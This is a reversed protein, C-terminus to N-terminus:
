EVLEDFTDEFVVKYRPNLIIQNKLVSLGMGENDNLINISPSRLADPM